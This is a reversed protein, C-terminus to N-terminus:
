TEPMIIIQFHSSGYEGGVTFNLWHRDNKGPNDVIWVWTAGFKATTIALKAPDNISVTSSKYTPKTNTIWEWKANKSYMDDMVKALVQVDQVSWARSNQFTVGGGIKAYATGSMYGVEGGISVDIGSTYTTANNVTEPSYKSIAHKDIPLVSNNHNTIKSNSWLKSMWFDKTRYVNFGLSKITERVNQSWLNSNPIIIEQYIIYYDRNEYFCHAAWDYYNTQINTSRKQYKGDAPLWNDTKLTNNFSNFQAAM